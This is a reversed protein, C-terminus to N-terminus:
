EPDVWPFTERVGLHLGKVMNMHFENNAGDIPVPSSSHMLETYGSLNDVWPNVYYYDWPSTWSVYEKCTLNESNPKPASESIKSLKRLLKRERHVKRPPEPLDPHKGRGLANGM